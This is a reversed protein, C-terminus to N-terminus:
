AEDSEDERSTCRLQKPVGVTRLLPRKGSAAVRKINEIAEKRHAPHDRVYDIALRTIIYQPCGSTCLVDFRQGGEGNVDEISAEKDCLYCATSNTM